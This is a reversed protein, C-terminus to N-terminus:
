LAPGPPPPPPPQPPELGGTIQLNLYSFMFLFLGDVVVIIPGRFIRHLIYFRLNQIQNNTLSLNDVMFTQFIGFNSKRSLLLRMGQQTRLSNIILRVKQCPWLIGM